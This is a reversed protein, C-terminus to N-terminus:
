AETVRPPSATARPKAYTVPLGMQRDIQSTQPAGDAMVLVAVVADHEPIPDLATPM